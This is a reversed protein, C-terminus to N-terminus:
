AVAERHGAGGISFANIKGSEVDAWVADAVKVGAVWAGKKVTENNLEFESKTVYSEVPIADVADKHDQKILRSDELFLHAAKEVEEATIIDGELDVTDPELVVGYVIHSKTDAKLIKVSKKLMNTKKLKMGLSALAAFVAPNMSEAPISVEVGGMQSDGEANMWWKTSIYVLPKDSDFISPM